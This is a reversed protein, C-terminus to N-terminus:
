SKPTSALFFIAATRLKEAGVEIEHAEDGGRQEVVQHIFVSRLTDSFMAVQAVECRRKWEPSTTDWEQREHDVKHKIAGAIRADLRNQLLM